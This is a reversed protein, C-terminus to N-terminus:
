RGCLRSLVTAAAATRRGGEPLRGDLWHFQPRACRVQGRGGRGDVGALRHRRLADLGLQGANELTLDPARGRFMRSPPASGRDLQERGALM